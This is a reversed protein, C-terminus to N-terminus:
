PGDKAEEGAAAAELRRDIARLLAELAGDWAGPEPQRFLRHRPYWRSRAGRPYRWDGAYPLLLWCPVGLAGCLHAVPGDVAVVLDLSPLLRALDAVHGFAPSMDHVLGAAGATVLDAVASGKQLALLQLGPRGALALLRELGPGREGDRGSWVLGVSLRRGPFAPPLLRPGEPAALFGGAPMQPPETAGLLHPLAALPAKFLGRGGAPLGGGREDLLSRCGPLGRVLPGLESSVALHYEFGRAALVPLWRLFFLSDGPGPEGHVVLSGPPLKEGQWNPLDRFPGRRGALRRRAELAEFGEAYRGAALQALALDLALRPSHERRELACRFAAVADDYRGLDSLAQGLGGLLGGDEPNAEVAGLFHSLAERLRGRERLINGLNNSLSANGPALALARRYCAEAAAQKGQGRLLVGLNNLAQVHAPDRALAEAYHRMAEVIRGARHVEVARAFIREAERDPPAPPAEVPARPGSPSASLGKRGQGEGM